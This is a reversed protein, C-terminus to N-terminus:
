LTAPVGRQGAVHQVCGWSTDGGQGISQSDGGLVAETLSGGNADPNISSRSILILLVITDGVEKLVHSELDQEQGERHGKQKREGM